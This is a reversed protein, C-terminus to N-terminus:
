TQLTLKSESKLIRSMSQPIQKKIIIDVGTIDCVNCVPSEM